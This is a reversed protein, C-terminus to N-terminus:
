ISVAFLSIEPLSGTTVKTGQAIAHTHQLLYIVSKTYLWKRRPSFYAEKFGFM